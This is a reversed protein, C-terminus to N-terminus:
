PLHYESQSETRVLEIKVVKLFELLPRSTIALLRFKSKAHYGWKALLFVVDFSVALVTMGLWKTLIQIVVGGTDTIFVM